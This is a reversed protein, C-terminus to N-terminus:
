AATAAPTRDEASIESLAHLAEEDPAHMSRDMEKWLVDANVQLVRARAMGSKQLEAAVAVGLEVLRDLSAEFSEEAEFYGFLTGDDRMYLSYNHWGNRRLTDLMDPWVANHHEKYEDLRDQKVKLM